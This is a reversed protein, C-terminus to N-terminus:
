HCFAERYRAAADARAAGNLQCDEHSDVDDCVGCEEYILSVDTDTPKQM